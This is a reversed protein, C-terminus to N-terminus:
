LQGQFSDVVSQLRESAAKPRPDDPFEGALNKFIELAAEIEGDKECLGALQLSAELRSAVDPNTELYRGYAYRAARVLGKERFHEALIRLGDRDEVNVSVGGRMRRVILEDIDRLEACLSTIVKLGIEVNTTLMAKLEDASLVTASVTGLARATGIRNSGAISDSLGVIEGPGFNRSGGGSIERVIEVGGSRLIFIMGSPDNEFYIVSGEKFKQEHPM